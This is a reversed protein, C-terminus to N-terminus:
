RALIGLAARLSAYAVPSGGKAARVGAALAAYLGAGLAFSAHALGGAMERDGGPGGEAFLFDRREPMRRTDERQLKRLLREGLSKGTRHVADRHGSQGAM